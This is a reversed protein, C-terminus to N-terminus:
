RIARLQENMFMDQPDLKDRIKMFQDIRNGYLKRALEANLNNIKGWHPRADYASMMEQFDNFLPMYTSDSLMVLSIYVRNADFNPIILTGPEKSVFRFTIRPVYIDLSKYKAFLVQMEEFVRPMYKSEVALETEIYRLGKFSRTLTKYSKERYTDHSLLCYRLNILSPMFSPFPSSLIVLTDYVGESFYNLIKLWWNNTPPLSTKDWSYCLTKGTYPNWEFMSYDHENYFSKFNSKVDEFNTIYRRTELVFAPECQLTLSYIVGLGGLSLRVAPLLESNQDESIVYLTGDAGLLEAEKIFSSMSPTHGTGHTGTATAGAITQLVIRGMNSLALGHEDLIENLRDLRMGAEIKIRQKEIDIKILRNLNETSILYGDTPVLNSWSHGSGFPRVNIGKSRAEQIINKLEELNKPAFIKKPTSTLNLGWNRWTITKDNHNCAILIILGLVVSIVYKFKM